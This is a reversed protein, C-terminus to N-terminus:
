EDETPFFAKGKQVFKAIKTVRRYHALLLKSTEETDKTHKDLEQLSNFGLGKALEENLKQAAKVEAADLKLSMIRAKKRRENLRLYIGHLRKYAEAVAVPAGLYIALVTAFQKAVEPNLALDIWGPSAYQISKIQPKHEKAVNARFIDYINVYSLGDRLEYTELVNKIRSSAIEVAETDLCYIFSYNQFYVRSFVTLDELSWKGDLFIKYTNENEM